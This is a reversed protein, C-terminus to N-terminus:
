HYLIDFELNATGTAGSSGKIWNIEFSSTGVNQIAGLTSNSGDDSLIIAYGSTTPIWNGTSGVQYINDQQSVAWSGLCVKKTGSVVARVTIAKPIKGALGNITQVGAVTLDRTASLNQLVTEGTHTSILDALSKLSETTRGTGALEALAAEVTTATILGGADQVGIASAGKGAATSALELILANLFAKINAANEDFKAKFTEDTLTPRDEPNTGLNEIIDTAATYPTLAM